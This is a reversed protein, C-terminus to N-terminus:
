DWFTGFWERFLDFARNFKKEYELYEPSNYKLTELKTYCTFGESIEDLIADYEIKRKDHAEDTPNNDVWDEDKFIKMPLGHKEIKLEQMWLPIKEALYWDISWVVREDYGNFVRQWAWKIENCIHEFIIWPHTLSHIPRYDAIGNPFVKDLWNSLKTNYINM